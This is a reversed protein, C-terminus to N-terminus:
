YHVNLDVGQQPMPRHDPHFGWEQELEVYVAEADGGYAPNNLTRVVADWYGPPAQNHYALMEEVTFGRVIMMSAELDAEVTEDATAAEERRGAAYGDKPLRAMPTFSGTTARNAESVSPFLASDSMGSLVNVPDNDSEALRDVRATRSDAALRYLARRQIESLVEESIGLITIIEQVRATIHESPTPIVPDSLGTTAIAANRADPDTIIRVLRQVDGADGRPATRAAISVWHLASAGPADTLGEPPSEPSNSGTAKQWAAWIQEPSWDDRPELLSADAVTRRRPTYRM